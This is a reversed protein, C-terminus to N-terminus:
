QNKPRNAELENLQDKLGELASNLSNRLDNFGTQQEEASSAFKKKLDAALGTIDPFAVAILGALQEVAHIQMREYSEVADLAEKVGRIPGILESSIQNETRTIVSELAQPLESYHKTLGVEANQIAELIGNFEGLKTEMSAIQGALVGYSLQIKQTSDKTSTAYEDLNALLSTANTHLVRISRAASTLEEVFRAPSHLRHRGLQRDVESILLRFELLEREAQYMEKGILKDEYFHLGAIVGIILVVSLVTGRTFNQFSFEPYLYGDFNQHWLTLFPTRAASPKKALLTAFASSASSLCFWTWAIPLFVLLKPIVELRGLLQRNPEFEKLEELGFYENIQIGLWQELRSEDESEAVIKLDQIRRKYARDLTRLMSSSAALKGTASRLDEWYTNDEM